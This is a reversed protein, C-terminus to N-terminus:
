DELLLLKLVAEGLHALRKNGDVMSPATVTHYGAGATRLAELLYRSNRFHYDIANQLDQVAPPIVSNNAMIYLPPPYRLTITRTRCRAPETANLAQVLIKRSRTILLPIELRGGTDRTAAYDVKRFLEM